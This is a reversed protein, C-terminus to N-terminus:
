SNMGLATKLPGLHGEYAKWREASTAYISQRAQVVSATRIPASVHSNSLCADDWPLELHELVRRVHPEPNVVMDEYQVDCIMGPLFKHWHDMLDAYFRYEAGLESLDFSYTFGNTFLSQYLSLCSGLPNRRCHIIKANPLMCHILGIFQFNDPMKDIQHAASPKLRTVNTAYAHGMARMQADTFDAVSEPFPKGAIQESRGLALRHIINLEGLGCVQPHRALVQELLTTGSRPMGVIFVPTPQNLNQASPEAQRAADHRSLFTQSFVQKVRKGYTARADSDNHLRKRNLTNGREFFGFAKSYAGIDDLAKGLAFFLHTRNLDSLDTDNNLTLMQRLHPDDETTYTHAVTMARHLACNRPLYTLAQELAEQAQDSKGTLLYLHVRGVLSPHHGPVANLALAFAEEAASSDGCEAAVRGCVALVDPNEPALAYAQSVHHRALSLDNTAQVRAMAAHTEATEGFVTMATSAANFAGDLDGADISAFALATQTWLTPGHANIEATIWRLARDAENTELAATVRKQFLAEDDSSTQTPKM